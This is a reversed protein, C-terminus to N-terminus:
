PDERLDPFDMSFKNFNFVFEDLKDQKNDPRHLFDLFNVQILHMREKMRERQTRSERFVKMTQEKFTGLLDEWMKLLVPRFDKDLNDRGPPKKVQEAEQENMPTKLENAPTKPVQAPTVAKSAPKTPAAKGGKKPAEAAEKEAEEAELKERAIREEEEKRLREEEQEQKIRAQEL